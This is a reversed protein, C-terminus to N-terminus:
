KLKYRQRSQWEKLYAVTDEDVVMGEGTWYPCPDFGQHDRLPEQCAGCKIKGTMKSQAPRWRTTM